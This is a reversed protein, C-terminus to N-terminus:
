IGYDMVCVYVSWMCMHVCMRVMHMSVPVCAIFGVTSCSVSCPNWYGQVFFLPFHTLPYMYKVFGM